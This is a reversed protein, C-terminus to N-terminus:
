AHQDKCWPRQLRLCSSGGDLARAKAQEIGWRALPHNIRYLHADGSRRPLEYRGLAIDGSLGGAGRGPPAPLLNPPLQHLTFGDDDFAACDGLEARTLDM